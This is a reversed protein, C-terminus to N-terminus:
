IKPLWVGSPKGIEYCEHIISQLLVLLNTVIGRTSTEHALREDLSAKLKASAGVGAAWLNFDALRNEAWQDMM